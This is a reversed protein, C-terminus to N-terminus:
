ETVLSVNYSLKNLLDMIKIIEGYAADKDGRIYITDPQASNQSQIGEQELKEKLGSLENIPHDQLFLRGDATVTLFIPQKNSVTSETTSQPLSVPIQSMIMPAAVLFIVLLVLMVDVFPTINIDAIYKRKKM